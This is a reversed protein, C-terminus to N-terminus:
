CSCFKVCCFCNNIRRNLFLLLLLFGIVCYILIYILIDIVTVGTESTPEPETGSPPESEPRSPPEPETLYLPEKVDVDTFRLTYGFPVFMDYSNLPEPASGSSWLRFGFEFLM